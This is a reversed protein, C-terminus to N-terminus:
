KSSYKQAYEKPTMNYYDKFCKTFYSPSSFGVEYMIESIRVDSKELMGAAKQLRINRILENVTIGSLAKVKRYVQIYSYNTAECLEKVSYESNALNKEIEHMIITMFKDENEEHINNGGGNIKQMFIDKLKERTAVLTDIRARLVKISFPKTIYADAGSKFGAEQDQATSKATLLIVPIHSTLENNKVRRCLELGDMDHMMIDSIVLDPCVEIIRELGDEGCSATIIQYNDQLNMKIFSLIDPNDDVVVIKKENIGREESEHDEGDNNSIPITFTFTSGKGLESEVSLMGGHLEVFDKTLGLGIGTSSIKEYCKASGQYFRDFIRAKDEQTMGQGSDVVSFEAYTAGDITREAICLQIKGGDPTFKFANSLLNYLIHEMKNRDFECIIENEAVFDYIMSRREANDKFTQFVDRAFSTVEGNELDLSVKEKDISRLELIQNILRLMREANQKMMVLQGREKADNVKDLLVDIPGLILSLPTKFEHSINTFFTMKVKNLSEMKAREMKELELQRSLMSHRRLHDFVFYLGSLTLVIYLMIAWWRLWWKQKIIIVISDPNSYIGDQNCAIVEFEYKGPKLNSYNAASNNGANIWDKDYGSLKFSYSNSSLSAYNMLACEISISNHGPDLVIPSELPLHTKGGEKLAVIHVPAKRLDMEVSEPKLRIVGGYGGFYIYEGAKCCSNYELENCSLDQNVDCIIKSNYAYDYMIIKNMLCIWIRDRNDSTIARISKSLDIDDEFRLFKGTAPDLRSLGMDTGVWVYENQDVHLSYIRNSNLSEKTSADFSYQTIGGTRKNYCFLGDNITGFWIRGKSDSDLYSVETNSSSVMKDIRVANFDTSSINGAADEKLSIICIGNAMNVVIDGDADCKMDYVYKLKINDKDPRVSIFSDKLKNYYAIGDNTGVWLRGSADNTLRKINNNPLRGKNTTYTKILQNTSSSFVQLGHGTGIWLKGEDDKFVDKVMTEKPVGNENDFIRFIEVSKAHKNVKSVGNGTGYWVIGMRDELTCWVTENPLSTRDIMSPTYNDFSNSSIEYISLGKATGISIHDDDFRGLVKIDNEILGSTEERYYRCSFDDLRMIALGNSTGIFLRDPYEPLSLLSSIFNNNQDYTRKERIEFRMHTLNKSDFLYLGDFTAIWLNGREDKVIHKIENARDDHNLPVLKVFTMFNGKKDIKILGESTGLWLFKEEEYICKIRLKGLLNDVDNDVKYQTFHELKQNYISLGMETAAILTGDDLLRVDNVWSSGLSNEDGPTHIFVKFRNGDYRNLGESTAMWIYGNRDQELSLVMKNSLGSETSINNFHLHAGTARTGCTFILFIVLCYVKKVPNM